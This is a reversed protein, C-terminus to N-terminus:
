IVRFSLKAFFFNFFRLLVSVEETFLKKSSVYLRRAIVYDRYKEPNQHYEDDDVLLHNFDNTIFPM